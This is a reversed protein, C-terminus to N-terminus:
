VSCIFDGVRKCVIPVENKRFCYNLDEARGKEKLIQYHRGNSALLWMDNEVSLYLQRSALAADSLLIDDNAKILLDVLYGTCLTDELSFEGNTGSGILVIEKHDSLALATAEANLFSAVFLDSAKDAGRIALTGNTTTMVLIAGSIVEPKMEWPSNGYDFGDIRDANREGALIIKEGNGQKYEFAETPSLVPLVKNAGNNLATVMVSTARLVDVVVVAKGEVKGDSLESASFIVDVKSTMTKLIKRKDAM